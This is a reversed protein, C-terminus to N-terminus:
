VTIAGIKKLLALFVLTDLHAQHEAVQYREFVLRSIEKLQRSGDCAEWIMNGIPNMSCVPSTEGGRERYLTTEEGSTRCMISPNRKPRSSRLIELEIQRMLDKAEDRAARVQNPSVVLIGPILGMCKHIFSRRSNAINVM